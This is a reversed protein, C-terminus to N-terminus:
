EAKNAEYKKGVLRAAGGCEECKIPNSTMIKRNCETCRTSRLGSFADFGELVLRIGLYSILAAVYWPIESFTAVLIGILLAVIGLILHYALMGAVGFAILAAWDRFTTKKKLAFLVFPLGTEYGNMCLAVEQTCVGGM